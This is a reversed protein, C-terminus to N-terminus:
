LYGNINTTTYGLKDLSPRISIKLSDNLLDDPYVTGDCESDRCDWQHCVSAKELNMGFYELFMKKTKSVAEKFSVADTKGSLRFCPVRHLFYGFISYCDEIYKSTDFVHQCWFADIDKSPVLLQEPFMLTLRLYARYQEEVTNVKKLSWKKEDSLKSRVPNLDLQSVKKQAEQLSLQTMMSTNM